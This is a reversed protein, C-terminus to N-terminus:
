QSGSTKWAESISSPQLYKSYQAECHLNRNIIHEEWEHYNMIKHESIIYLCEINEPPIPHMVLVEADYGERKDYRKSINDSYSLSNNWYEGVLEEGKTRMFDKTRYFEEMDKLIFPEYMSNAQNENCVWCREKMIKIRLIASHSHWKHGKGFYFSAFIAKKREVWDPIGKPKNHDFYAHFDTYKSAYTNKDDYRIGEKLAKKLDIISVIHYLKGQEMYETLIM